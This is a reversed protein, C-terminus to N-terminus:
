YTGYTYTDADTNDFAPTDTWLSFLWMIGSRGSNSVITGSDDTLSIRSGSQSWADSVGATYKSQWGSDTFHEESLLCCCPCGVQFKRRM